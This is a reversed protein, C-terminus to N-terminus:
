WGDDLLISLRLKAAHTDGHRIDVVGLKCYIDIANCNGRTGPTGDHNDMLAEGEGFQDRCRGVVAPRHECGRPSFTLGERAAACFALRQHAGPQVREYIREQIIKLLAVGSVVKRNRLDPRLRLRTDYGPLSRMAEHSTDDEIQQIDHGANSNQNIPLTAFM